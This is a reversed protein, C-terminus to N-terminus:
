ISSPDDSGLVASLHGVAEARSEATNDSLLVVRLFDLLAQVQAPSPDYIQQLTKLLEELRCIHLEKLNEGFADLLACPSLKWQEETFASLSQYAPLTKYNM